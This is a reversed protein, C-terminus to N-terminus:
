NSTIARIYTILNRIQQDSLTGQWPAMLASKGVPPGGFKILRFLDENSQSNVHKSGAIQAPKPNLIAALPGDDNGAGGHCPACYVKFDRAGAHADISRKDLEGATVIQFGCGGGLM